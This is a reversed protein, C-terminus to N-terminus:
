LVGYFVDCHCISTIITGYRVVRVKGKHRDLPHSVSERISSGRKEVFPCMKEDSEQKAGRRREESRINERLLIVTANLFLLIM